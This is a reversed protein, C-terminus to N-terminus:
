AADNPAGEAELAPPAPAIDPVVLSSAGKAQLKGIEKQLQRMDRLLSNSKFQLRGVQYTIDGVQAAAKAYQEYLANLENM